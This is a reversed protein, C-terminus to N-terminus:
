QQCCNFKLLIILIYILSELEILFNVSGLRRNFDKSLPNVVLMPVVLLVSGRNVKHIQYSLITLEIKESAPLTRM